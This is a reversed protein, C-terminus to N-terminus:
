FFHLVFRKFGSTDSMYRRHQNVKNNAQQLQQQQQEQQHQIIAAEFFQDKKTQADAYNSQIEVIENCDDQFLILSNM